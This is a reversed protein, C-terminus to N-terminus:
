HVVNLRTTSPYHVLGIPSRRELEDSEKEKSTMNQSCNWISSLPFPFTLKLWGKETKWDKGIRMEEITCFDKLMWWESEEVAGFLSKM